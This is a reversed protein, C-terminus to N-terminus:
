AAVPTSTDSAKRLSKRSRTASVRGDFQPEPMSMATGAGEEFGGVVRRGSDVDLPHHEGFCCGFLAHLEYGHWAGGVWDGDSHRAAM